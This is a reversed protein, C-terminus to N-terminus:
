DIDLKSSIQKKIKRLEEIEQITSICYKNRCKKCIPRRNVSNVNFYIKNYGVFYTVLKSKDCCFCTPFLYNWFASISLIIILFVFLVWIDM